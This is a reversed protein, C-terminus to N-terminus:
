KKTPVKGSKKVPNTLPAVVKGTSKKVQPPPLPKSLVKGGKKLPPKSDQEDDDNDDDEETKQDQEDDDDNDVDEDPEEETKPDQEDDDDDDDYDNNAEAENGEEEDEDEEEEEEVVKVVQTKKVPQTTKKVPAKIVPATKTAVKKVPKIEAEVEEDRCINKEEKQDKIQKCRDVGSIEKLKEMLAASYCTYLNGFDHQESIEEKLKDLVESSNETLVYKCTIHRGLYNRSEKYLPNADAEAEVSFLWATGVRLVGGYMFGVAGKVPATSKKPMTVKKTSQDGKPM